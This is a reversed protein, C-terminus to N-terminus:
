SGNASLGLSCIIQPEQTQSEEQVICLRDENRLDIVLEALGRDSIGSRLQRNLTDTAEQRLPYRYIDELARRLAPTDFVTGEVTKAYRKLHEYVRFRAGSPRGLGGGISLEETIILETGKQVLDHHEELPPLASTDPKCAAAQLIAFQSETVSQGDRNVWALADNGKVPGCISSRAKLSSIRRTTPAHQIFSWVATKSVIGELQPDETIANKWIQYAYSALDVDNDLEDDLLDAQENYLDLIAKKNDEDEFFAEDTGVVEANEHLRALVRARM